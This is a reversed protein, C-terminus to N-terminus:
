KEFMAASSRHALCAQLKHFRNRALPNDGGV